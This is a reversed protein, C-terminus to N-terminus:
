GGLKFSAVQDQMLASLPAVVVVISRHDGQSHLLDFVLPLCTYCVSKGSCVSGFVRIQESTPNSYGLSQVTDLVAAHVASKKYARLLQLMVVNMELQQSM